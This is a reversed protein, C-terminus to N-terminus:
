VHSQKHSRPVGVCHRFRDPQIPTLDSQCIQENIRGRELRTWPAYWVRNTQRSRMVAVAGNLNRLFSGAGTKSRKEFAARSHWPWQGIYLERNASGEADRKEVVVNGM